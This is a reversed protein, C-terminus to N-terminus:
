RRVQGEMCQELRSQINKFRFWLFNGPQNLFGAIMLWFGSRYKPNILAVKVNLGRVMLRSLKLKEVIVVKKGLCREVAVDSMDAM